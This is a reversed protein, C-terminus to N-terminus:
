RGANGMLGLVSSFSEVQVVDDYLRGASQRPSAFCRGSNGVGLIAGNAGDYINGDGDADESGPSAVAFAVNMVLGAVASCNVPGSGAGNGTVYVQVTTAAANAANVLAQRFDNRNQHNVDGIVDGSREKVVSLDADLAADYYIGYALNQYQASSSNFGLTIFPVSGLSGAYSGNVDGERGDGNTDPMPLRQNTMAFAVTASRVNKLIADSRAANPAAIWERWMGTSAAAITGILVLVVAVELLTFGQESKNYGNM